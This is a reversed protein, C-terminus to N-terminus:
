LIYKNGLDEERDIHEGMGNVQSCSLAPVIDKKKTGHRGENIELGISTSLGIRTSL